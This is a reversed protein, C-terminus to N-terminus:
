GTMDQVKTKFMTIHPKTGLDARNTETDVKSLNLVKERVLHQLWMMQVSVHKLRRGAGLRAAAGPENAPSLGSPVATEKASGRRALPPARVRPTGSGDGGKPGGDGLRDLLYGAPPRVQVRWAAASGSGM